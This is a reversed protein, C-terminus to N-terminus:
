IGLSDTSLDEADSVTSGLASTLVLSIPKKTPLALAQIWGTLSVKFSFLIFRFVIV